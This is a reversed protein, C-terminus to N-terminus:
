NRNIKVYIKDSKMKISRKIRKEKAKNVTGIKDVNKGGVSGFNKRGEDRSKCLLGM